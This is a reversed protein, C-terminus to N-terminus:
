EMPIVGRRLLGGLYNARYIARLREYTLRHMGRPRPPFDGAASYGGGVRRKAAAARAFARDVVGVVGDGQSPYALRLCRRCQGLMRVSALYLIAAREGCRPCIWWPRAGGFQCPSWALRYTNEALALLEAGDVIAGVRRAYRVDLRGFEAVTARRTLRSRGSGPGGM